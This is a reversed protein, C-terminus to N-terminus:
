SPVRSKHRSWFAVAWFASVCARSSRVSIPSATPAVIVRCLRSMRSLGGGGDVDEEPSDKQSAAMPLKIKIAAKNIPPQNIQGRSTPGSGVRSGMATTGSAVAVAVAMSMGVRVAVGVGM